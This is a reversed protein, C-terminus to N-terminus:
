PRCSSPPPATPSPRAPRPKPPPGGEPPRPWPTVTSRTPRSPRLRLVQFITLNDLLTIFVSPGTKVFLYVRGKGKIFFKVNGTFSSTFECTFILRQSWEYCKMNSLSIVNDYSVAVWM